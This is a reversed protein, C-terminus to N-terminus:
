CIEFPGRLGAFVAEDLAYDTGETYNKNDDTVGTAGSSFAGIDIFMLVLNGTPNKVPTDGPKCTYWLTSTYGAGPNTLTETSESYDIGSDVLDKNSDAAFSEISASCFCLCASMMVSLFKSAKM